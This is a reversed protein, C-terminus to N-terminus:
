ILITILAPVVLGINQYCFNLHEDKLWRDALSGEGAQEGFAHLVLHRNGPYRPSSATYITAEITSGLSKRCDERSFSAAVPPSSYQELVDQDRGISRIECDLGDLLADEEGLLDTGLNGSDRDSLWEM